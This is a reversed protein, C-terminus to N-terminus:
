HTASCILSGTQAPYFDVFISILCVFLGIGEAAIDGNLGMGFRLFLVPRQLLYYKISYLYIRNSKFVNFM